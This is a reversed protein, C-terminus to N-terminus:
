KRILNISISQYLEAVDRKPEIMSLQLLLYEMWQLLLNHATSRIVPTDAKMSSMVDRQCRLLVTNLYTDLYTNYQSGQISIRITDHPVRITVGRCSLTVFLRFMQNPSSLYSLLSCSQTHQGFNFIRHREVSWRHHIAWYATNGKPPRYVKLGRIYM